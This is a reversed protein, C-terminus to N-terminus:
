PKEATTMSEGLLEPLLGLARLIMEAPNCGIVEHLGAYSTTLRPNIEVLVAGNDTLIFDIGVYGHLGPLARGIDAAFGALAPRCHNLAGARVGKHRVKNGRFEICQENCALIECRGDIYLVSLSAHTGATCPQLVFRDSDTRTSRWDDIQGPTTFYWTEECGAGDEPKIIWGGDSRPLPESLSVTEVCAIGRGAFYEATQRKSSCLAISRSDCGIFFCGLDDSMNRLQLLIGESEPAVCWAADADQLCRRWLAMVDTNESVPVAGPLLPLRDDRTTFTQLGPVLQLQTHLAAFMAQGDRLLAPPLPHRRLGGGTIYECVFLRM